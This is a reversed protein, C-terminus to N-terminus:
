PIRDPHRRYGYIPVISTQKGICCSFTGAPCSCRTALPRSLPLHISRRLLDIWSTIPQNTNSCRKMHHVPQMNQLEDVPRTTTANTTPRREAAPLTTASYGTAAQRRHRPIPQRGSPTNSRSRAISNAPVLCSLFDWVRGGSLSLSGLSMFWRPSVFFVDSIVDFFISM